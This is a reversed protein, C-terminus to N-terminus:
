HTDRQTNSLPHPLKLPVTQGFILIWDNYVSLWPINYPAERYSLTAASEQVVKSM